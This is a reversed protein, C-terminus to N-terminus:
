FRKFGSDLSEATKWNRLGPSDSDTVKKLQYRWTAVDHNMHVESNWWGLNESAGLDLFEANKSNRFGPSNKNRCRVWRGRELNPVPPGLKQYLVKASSPLSQTRMLYTLMWVHKHMCSCKGLQTNQGNKCKANTMPSVDGSIPLHTKAALSPNVITVECTNAHASTPAVRPVWTYNCVRRCTCYLPWYEAPSWRCSCSYSLWRKRFYSLTHLRM